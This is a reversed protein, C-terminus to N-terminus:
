KLKKLKLANIDGQNCQKSTGDPSSGLKCEDKVEVGIAGDMFKLEQEILEKKKNKDSFVFKRSSMALDNKLKFNDIYKKYRGKKLYALTMHPKYDSFFERYDFRERILKNLKRLEDSEITFILVDCEESNFVSMGNLSLNVKKDGIVEKITKSLEEIDVNDHFGYLVTVHPDTEYGFDKDDIKYVDDVSIHKKITEEWTSINLNLMLCGYDNVTSM